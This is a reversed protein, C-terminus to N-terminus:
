IRVSIIMIMMIIIKRKDNINKDNDCVGELWVERGGGWQVLRGCMRGEEDM